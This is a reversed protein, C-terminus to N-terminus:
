RPQKVIGTTNISHLFGFVANLNNVKRFRQFKSFYEFVATFLENLNGRYLIRDDYVMKISYYNIHIYVNEFM